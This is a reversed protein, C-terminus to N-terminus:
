FGSYFELLDNRYKEATTGLSELHEAKEEEDMCWDFERLPHHTKAILEEKYSNLRNKLINRHQKKRESLKIKMIDTIYRKWQELRTMSRNDYANSLKETNSVKETYEDMYEDLNWFLVSDMIGTELFEDTIQQKKTQDITPFLTLCYSFIPLIRRETPRVTKIAELLNGIEESIPRNMGVEGRHRQLRIAGILAASLLKRYKYPDHRPYVGSYWNYFSGYAEQLIGNRLEGEGEIEELTEVPITVLRKSLAAELEERENQRYPCIWGRFYKAESIRAQLKALYNQHTHCFKTEGSLRTKRCQRHEQTYGECLNM